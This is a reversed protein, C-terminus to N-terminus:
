RGTFPPLLARRPAVLSRTLQAHVHDCVRVLGCRRPRLGPLPWRARSVQRDVRRHTQAGLRPPGAGARQRSPLVAGSLSPVHGPSGPAPAPTGRRVGDKLAQPGRAGTGPRLAPLPAGSAPRLRERHCAPEDGAAALTGLSPIGERTGVRSRRSGLAITARAAAWDRTRGTQGPAAGDGTGKQQGQAM